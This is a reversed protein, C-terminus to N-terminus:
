PRSIPAARGRAFPFAPFPDNRPTDVTGAPGLVEQRRRLHHRNRSRTHREGGVEGAGSGFLIDLVHIDAREAEPM